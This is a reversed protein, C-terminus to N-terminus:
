SAGGLLPLTAAWVRWALVVAFLTFGVQAFAAVTRTAADSRRLADRLTGLLHRLGLMGGLALGLTGAFAASARTESGVVYLAALPALGALVLGASACGRAAAGLARVPSLPADFLALVIYLAPVGLLCVAAVAAPVGVAHRLMALGGERAGLAVGYGSCLALGIGARRALGRWDAGIELLASTWGPRPEGRHIADM